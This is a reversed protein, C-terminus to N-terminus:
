PRVWKYTKRAAIQHVTNTSSFDYRRQFQALRPRRGAAKAADYERRIARVAPVTLLPKRGAM